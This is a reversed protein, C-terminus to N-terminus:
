RITTSHNTVANTILLGVGLAAALLVTALIAVELTTMGRDSNLREAAAIRLRLYLADLSGRFKRAATNDAVPSHLAM